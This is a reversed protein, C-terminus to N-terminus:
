KSKDKDQGPPTVVPPTVVPPTTVPPTKIVDTVYNFAINALRYHQHAIDATDRAQLIPLLETRYFQPWSRPTVVCTYISDSVGPIDVYLGHDPENPRHYVTIYTDPDRGFLFWKRWGAAALSKDHDNEVNQGDYIDTANDALKFGDLDYVYHMM